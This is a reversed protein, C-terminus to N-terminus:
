SAADWEDGFPRAGAERILLNTATEIREELAAMFARRDLGPAIPALYELVITGPHRLFKHRPWYLGSNVAVPVAEVGLHKYIAAVGPQYPLRAGPATRTGEPFIIIQRGADIAVQSIRLMAKLAGAGGRRDVPIMRSKRCFWGYVPIDLLERKLVVAPHPFLVHWIITDWASQHKDAVLVAGAPPTGRVEYRIGVLVRMLAMVGRAWVRQLFVTVSYPLALAPLSALLSFVTWGFFAANFLVSRVVLM